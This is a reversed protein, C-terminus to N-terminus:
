AIRINGVPVLLLSNADVRAIIELWAHNVIDKLRSMSTSHVIIQQVILVKQDQIIKAISVNEM